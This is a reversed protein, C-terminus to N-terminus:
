NERSAHYMREMDNMIVLRDDPSGTIFLGLAAYTEKDKTEARIARATHLLSAQVNRKDALALKHSLLITTLEPTENSM